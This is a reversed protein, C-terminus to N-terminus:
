KIIEPIRSRPIVRVPVKPEKNIKAKMLRHLGDLIILRGEQEIVDIPYILDAKMTRYYEEQHAGPNEVVERPTLGSKGNINLLPVDLHWDLESLDVWAVPENLAWLKKQDWEFDLGLLKNYDSPKQVGNLNNM